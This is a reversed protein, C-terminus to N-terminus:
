FCSTTYCPDPVRVTAGNVTVRALDGNYPNCAGSLGIFCAAVHQGAVHADVDDASAAPVSAVAALLLLSAALLIRSRM